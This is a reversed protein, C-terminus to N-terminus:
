YIFLILLIFQTNSLDIIFVFLVKKHCILLKGGLNKKDAGKGLNGAHAYYYANKGKNIINEELASKAQREEEEQETLETVEVVDETKKLANQVIESEDM